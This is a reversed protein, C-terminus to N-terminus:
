AVPIDPKSNGACFTSHPWVDKAAEGPHTATASAANVM